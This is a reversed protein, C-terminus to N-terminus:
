EGGEDIWFIENEVIGQLIAAHWDGRRYLEAALNSTLIKIESNTARQLRKTSYYICHCPKDAKNALRRWGNAAWLGPPSKKIITNM